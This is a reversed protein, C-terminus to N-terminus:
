RTSRYGLHILTFIGTYLSGTYLIYTIDYLSILYIVKAQTAVKQLSAAQLLAVKQVEQDRTELLKTHNELKKDRNEIEQKQNELKTKNKELEKIKEELEQDQNQLLDDRRQIQRKLNEIQNRIQDPNSRSSVSSVISSSTLISNDPQIRPSM